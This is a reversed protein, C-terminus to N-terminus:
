LFECACYEKIFNLHEVELKFWEHKPNCKHFALMRHLKKEVGKANKVKFVYLLKLNRACGTQLQQVRKLPHKSIGIKYIPLTEEQIVYLLKDITKFGLSIPLKKQFYLQSIIIMELILESVKFILIVGLEIQYKM